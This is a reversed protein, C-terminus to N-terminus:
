LNAMSGKRGEGMTESGSKVSAWWSGGWSVWHGVGSNAYCRLTLCWM